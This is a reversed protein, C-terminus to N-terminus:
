GLGREALVALAREEVKKNETLIRELADANERAATVQRDWEADYRAESWGSSDRCAADFTATEIERASAVVDDTAGDAAGATRGFEAELAKSPM